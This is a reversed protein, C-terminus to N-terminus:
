CILVLKLSSITLYIHLSANIYCFVSLVKAINSLYKNIKAELEDVQGQMFTNHSVNEVARKIVCM